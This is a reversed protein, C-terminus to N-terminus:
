SHKCAIEKWYILQDCLTLHVNLVLFMLDRVGPERTVEMVFHSSHYM